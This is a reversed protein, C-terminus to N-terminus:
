QIIIARSIVVDNLMGDCKGRITITEGAATQNTLQQNAAVFSSDLYVSVGFLEDELIIATGQEGTQVAVVEGSVEVVKGSYKANAATEDETYDNFLQTSSLKFEPKTNELNEHPKLFVYWYAGAGAVIALVILILSIKYAPKM